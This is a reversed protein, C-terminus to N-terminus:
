VLTELSHGVEQILPAMGEGTVASVRFVPLHREEFRKVLLEAERRAEPVDM